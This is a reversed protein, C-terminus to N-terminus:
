GQGDQSTSAIQVDVIELIHTDKTDVQRKQNPIESVHNM